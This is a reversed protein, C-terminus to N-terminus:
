ENSFKKVFIFEEDNEFPNKKKITIRKIDKASLNIM